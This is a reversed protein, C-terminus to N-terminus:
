AYRRARLPMRTHTYYALQIYDAVGAGDSPLQHRSSAPTSHDPIIPFQPTNAKFPSIVINIM